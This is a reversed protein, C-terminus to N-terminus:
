LIKKIANQARFYVDKFPLSADIIKIRKEKEAVALYNERVLNLYKLREFKSRESRHTLRKLSVKPDVDFLLTLDPELIIQKNISLLWDRYEKMPGGLERHLLVAQYAVTSDSYRDSFVHRGKAMRNKIRDTHTARDALFLFTETYPSTKVKYSQRVADGLWTDTPERTVTIKKGAKKLHSAIRKCITTKGCGDVGEFTVFVPPM